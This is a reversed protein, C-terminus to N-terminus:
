KMKKPIRSIRLIMYQKFLTLIRLKEQDTNELRFVYPENFFCLINMMGKSHSLTKYRSWMDSMNSFLSM